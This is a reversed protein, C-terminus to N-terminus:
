FIYYPRSTGLNGFIANGHIINQHIDGRGNLQPGKGTNAYNNGSGKNNQTVARDTEEQLSSPMENMEMIVEAVEEM